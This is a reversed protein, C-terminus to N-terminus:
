FRRPAVWFWSGVVMVGFVTYFFAFVWWPAQFYLISDMWHSVFSGAYVSDGARSRLSMELTTLPCIMGFWSQAVVVSIAVLHVVRFWRNRVWYWSLVKGTFIMVLGAVVFVVFLLHVLLIADAALLFLTSSEM